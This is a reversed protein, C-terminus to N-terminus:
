VTYPWMGLPQGHDESTPAIHAHGFEDVGARSRPDTLEGGIHRRAALFHLGLLGTDEIRRGLTSPTLRPEFM